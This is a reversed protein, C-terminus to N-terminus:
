PAKGGLVGSLQPHLVTALAGAADLLGFAGDSELGKPLEVIRGGEGCAALKALGAHECLAKGQGHATVLLQPDMAWLQEISYSPWDRYGHELALDHVGGLKLIESLNTGSGAGFLRNGYRTLYIGKPRALGESAKELAFRRTQLSAAAFAAREPAKVLQGLAHLDAIAKDLTSPGGLDFTVIGREALRAMSAPDTLSSALVLDPDLGLIKEIQSSSDITAIDPLSFGHPHQNVVYSPVAVLRSPEVLHPLLLAMQPELAVIRAFARPVVKQGRRDQLTAQASPPLRPGAQLVKAQARTKQAGYLAGSGGLGLALCLAALQRLDLSM